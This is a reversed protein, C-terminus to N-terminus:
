SKGEKKELKPLGTFNKLQSLEAKNKIDQM